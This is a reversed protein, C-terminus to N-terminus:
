WWIYWSHKLFKDVESLYNHRMLTLNSHLFDVIYLHIYKNLLLVYHFLNFVASEFQKIRVTIYMTLYRGRHFYRPDRTSVYILLWINLSPYFLKDMGLTWYNDWQLKSLSLYKWEVRWVPHLWIDMNPNFNFWTPSRVANKFNPNYNRYMDTCVAELAIISYLM